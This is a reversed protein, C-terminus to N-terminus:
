ILTGATAITAAYYNAGVWSMAAGTIPATGSLIQMKNESIFGTSGSTLVIAKTSSATLNNLFNRLIFLNTTDTTAGAILGASAGAAAVIYNGEIRVADGGVLSIASTLGANNTGEMMNNLITLDTAGAATLIGLTAQNTAGALIVKNDRLTFGAATVTIGAAIADFGTLDLIVNEIACNAATVPINATTATTFTFKPRSNGIGLGVVRVGAVSMALDTASTINETHGPMVIIVDGNNALCQALALSVTTYTGPQGNPWLRDGYIAKVENKAVLADAGVIYFHGTTQGNRMANVVLAVSQQLGPRSNANPYM